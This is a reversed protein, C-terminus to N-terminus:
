FTTEFRQSCENQNFRWNQVGVGRSREQWIELTKRAKEIKECKNKLIPDGNQLKYISYNQIEKKNRNCIESLGQAEKNVKSISNL